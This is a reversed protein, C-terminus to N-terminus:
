HQNRVHQHRRSDFCNQARRPSIDIAKEGCPVHAAHHTVPLIRRNGLVEPDGDNNGTKLREIQEISDPARNDLEFCPLVFDFVCVLAYNSKLAVLWRLLQQTFNKFHRIACPAADPHNGLATPPQVGIIALKVGLIAEFDGANM